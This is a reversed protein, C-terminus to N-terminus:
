ISRFFFHLHKKLNDSIQKKLKIDKEELLSIVLSFNVEADFTDTSGICSILRSVVGSCSNWSARIEANIVLGLLNKM